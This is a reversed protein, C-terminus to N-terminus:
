RAPLSRMVVLPRTRIYAPYSADEQPSSALGVRNIAKVASAEAQAQSSSVGARYLPASLRVTWRWKGSEEPNRLPYTLGRYQVIACRRM